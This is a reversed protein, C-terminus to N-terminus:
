QTRDTLNRGDLLKIIIQTREFLVILFYLGKEDSVNMQLLMKSEDLNYSVSLSRLVYCSILNTFSLLPSAVLSLCSAKPNCLHPLTTNTKLHNTPVQKPKIILLCFLACSFICIARICCWIQIHNTYFSYRYDWRSNWVSFASCFVNYHSKVIKPAMLWGDPM